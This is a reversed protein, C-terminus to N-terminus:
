GLRDYAELISLAERDEAVVERGTKRLRTRFKEAPTVLLQGSPLEEVLVQSGPTFGLRELGRPLTMVISNGVRRVKVLKM